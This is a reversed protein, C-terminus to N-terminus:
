REATGPAPWKFHRVTKDLAWFASAIAQKRERDSLQGNGRRHAYSWDDMKEAIARVHDNRCSIAAVNFAHMILHFTECQQKLTPATM